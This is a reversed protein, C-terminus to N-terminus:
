ADPQKMYKEMTCFITSKDASRPFFTNMGAEFLKTIEEPGSRDLVAIIPVQKKEARELKRIEKALQGGDAAAPCLGTVVADFAGDQKRYQKLAAERSPAVHCEMGASQFYGSYLAAYDTDEEVLLVRRGAFCFDKKEALEDETGRCIDAAIQYIKRQLLPRELFYDAGCEKLGAQNNQANKDIIAIMFVPNGVDQTKLQGALEAWGGSVMNWDLFCANFGSDCAYPERFLRLAHGVHDSVTCRVGLRALGTSLYGSMCEDDSVVVANLERFDTLGKKEKLRGAPLSVRFGAETGTSSIVREIKGGMLDALSEALLIGDAKEAKSNCPPDRESARYVEIELLARGDGDMRECYTTRIKAGDATNLYTNALLSRWIARMPTLDVSLASQIWRHVKFSLHIKRNQCREYLEKSVAAIMENLWFATTSKKKEDSCLQGMESIDETLAALYGTQKRVEALTERTKGEKWFHSQGTVALLNRIPRRLETVIGNLFNRQIQNVHMEDTLQRQLMMRGFVYNQMVNRVRNRIVSPNDPSFIFDDAGLELMRAEMNEDSATRVVVPIDRLRSDAKMQKLVGCGDAESLFIDLIVIDIRQRGLALMAEETNRAEVIEYESQFMEKLSVRNVEVDDAVLMTLKEVM